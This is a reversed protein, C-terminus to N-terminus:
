LLIETQRGPGECIGNLKVVAQQRQLQQHQNPQQDMMATTTTTTTGVTESSKLRRLAEGGMTTRSRQGEVGSNMRQVRAGLRSRSFAELFLRKFTPNLWAYLIPNAVLTTMAIAHTIISLLYTYNTQSMQLLSDDYEIM